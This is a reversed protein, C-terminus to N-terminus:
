NRLAVGMGETTSLEILGGFENSVLELFPGLENRNRAIVTDFFACNIHDTLLINHCVLLSRRSLRPLLSNMLHFYIGKGRRSPDPHSRPLEADLVVMDFEGSDPGALYSEGPCSITEVNILPYMRSLNSRAVEMAHTDPDILIAEGGNVELAPLLWAAWYGYYSGLFVVRQPRFALALALLLRGEEPYIYTHYDQHNFGNSIRTAVQSSMARFDKPLTLDPLALSSFADLAATEVSPPFRKAYHVDDSPIGHAVLHDRMQDLFLSFEQSTSKGDCFKQYAPFLHLINEFKDRITGIM